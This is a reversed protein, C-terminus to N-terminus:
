EKEKIYKEAYDAFKLYYERCNIKQGSYPIEKEKEQKYKLCNVFINYFLVSMEKNNSKM